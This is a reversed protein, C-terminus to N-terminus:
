FAISSGFNKLFSKASDSALVARVSGGALDPIDAHALWRQFSPVVEKHARRGSM